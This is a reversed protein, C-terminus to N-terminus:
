LLSLLPQCDAVWFLLSAAPVLGTFSIWKVVAAELAIQVLGSVAHGSTDPIHGLRIGM